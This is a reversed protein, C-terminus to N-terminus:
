LGNWCDASRTRMPRGIWVPSGEIRHWSGGGSPRTPLPPVFLGTTNSHSLRLSRLFGKLDTVAPRGRALLSCSQLHGGGQLSETLGFLGDGGSRMTEVIPALPWIPGLVSDNALLLETLAPWRREVEPILDRWAGFDLGLNERRVALACLRCVAQWDNEPIASAMSIFVIAFGSARLLDLHFRVMGSVTGTVSYHAYLAV